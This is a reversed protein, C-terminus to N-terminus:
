KVEMAEIAARLSENEEEQLQIDAAYVSARQKWQGCEEWCAKIEDLAKDLVKASGFEAIGRLEEAVNRFEKLTEETMRM